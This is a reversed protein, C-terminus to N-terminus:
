LIIQKEMSSLSSPLMRKGRQTLRLKQQIQKGLKFLLVAKKLLQQIYSVYTHKLFTNMNWANNFYKKYTMM